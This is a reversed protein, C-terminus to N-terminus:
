TVLGLAGYKAVMLDRSPIDGVHRSLLIIDLLLFYPLILLGLRRKSNLIQDVDIDFSVMREWTPMDDDDTPMIASDSDNDNKDDDDDPPSSSSQVLDTSNRSEVTM